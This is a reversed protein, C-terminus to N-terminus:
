LGLFCLLSKQAMELGLFIDIKYEHSKFRHLVGRRVDVM